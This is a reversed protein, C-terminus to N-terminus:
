ARPPQGLAKQAVTTVTAFPWHNASAVSLGRIKLPLNQWVALTPRKFFVRPMDFPTSVGRRGMPITARSSRLSSLTPHQPDVSRFRGPLWSEARVKFIEGAQRSDVEYASLKPKPLAQGDFRDNYDPRLNIRGHHPYVRVLLGGEEVKDFVVRDIYQTQVGGLVQSGYADAILVVSLWAFKPNTFGILYIGHISHGMGGTTRRVSSSRGGRPCRCGAVIVPSSEYWVREWQGSKKTLLM